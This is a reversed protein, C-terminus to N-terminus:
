LNGNHLVKIIENLEHELISQIYNADKNELTVSIRSPLSSFKKVLESALESAERKVDDVLIWKKKEIEYDLKRRKAVWEKEETKAKNYRAGLDSDKPAEDDDSEVNDHDYGRVTKKTTRPNGGHKAGAVAANEFGLVRCTKWAEIGELKPIQGKENSPLRGAKILKNIRVHSVGVEPLAAFARQSLYEETM